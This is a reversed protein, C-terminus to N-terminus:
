QVASELAQWMSQVATLVHANAAYANQLQIMTSMETDISVGSVDAVKGQLTTQVSQETTLQSQATASAQSQSAVMGSVLSALDTSSYPAALNGNPGLGTQAPVPQSVGARSDAGFTYDLVRAVLGTFGTPGNAPNPTFASGGGPDGAAIANTGDRVLSANALVQPNVQIEGSFGVYGTQVPAGGAPVNGAANTLLTLGQAQFRTAVTHSYEDLEGQFTPLTVDRLQLNAGIQGGSLQTTVDTGNLTIPPVSAPYASTPGLSADTTAFPPTTGHLPISLGSQTFALMDGNSQPVFNVNLLQSVQQTALDRQNELDATSGGAGRAAIIQDSLSGINAIQANLSGVESVLGDQAGQRETGYSQALTNIGTALGQAATVVQLQSTQSSPDSALTSFAGQLNGQLSALDNGQGPTGQATDIASLATTTVQLGAVTGGQANLSADLQANVQRQAVGVVVGMPESGASVSTQPATEVAYGPTGANAVNHSILALQQNIAGLGSSAISLAADLSM